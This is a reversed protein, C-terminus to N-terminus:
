RGKGGKGRRAKDIAEGKNFCRNQSQEQMRGQVVQERVSAM